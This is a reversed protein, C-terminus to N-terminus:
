INRKKIRFIDKFSSFGIHVENSLDDIFVAPEDSSINNLVSLLVDADEQNGAKRANVEKEIERGIFRLNTRLDGINKGTISDLDPLNFNNIFKKGSFEALFQALIEKDENKFSQINKELTYFLNTYKGRIAFLLDGKETVIKIIRDDSAILVSIITKGALEDFFTITNKKARSYRNRINLYPESHNVSIELFTDEDDFLHLILRDKEQSFISLIKKGSILSNLELTLRNLYYYSKYM